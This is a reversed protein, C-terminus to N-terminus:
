KNGKHNIRGLGSIQQSIQPNGYYDVGGTGSITVDMTGTVWVVVRGLGTITIIASKSQLNEGDYNGAGSLTVKQSDVQGNTTLNGAGGVNVTVSNAILDDIEINGTGSIGLKLQDTKIQPATINSVGQTELSHINPMTLRFKIPKTPIVAKKEFNIMLTNNEVTTQIYPLINDEAEIELKEPSGQIVTVDGIGNLTVKDFNSVNRPQTIVNGSGREVNLNVNDVSLNCAGFLMAILIFIPIFIRRHM